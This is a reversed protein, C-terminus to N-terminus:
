KKFQERTSSVVRTAGGACEPAGCLRLLCLHLASFMGFHLQLACNRQTWRRTAVSWGQDRSWCNKRWRVLDQWFLRRVRAEAKGGLASSLSRGPKVTSMQGTKFDTIKHWDKTHTHARARVHAHVTESISGSRGLLERRGEGNRRCSAWGEGTCRLRRRWAGAAAETAAGCSAADSGLVALFCVRACVCVRGCARACWCPSSM